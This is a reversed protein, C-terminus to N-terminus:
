KNPVFYMNTRLLRKKDNSYQVGYSDELWDIDKNSWSQTIFSISDIGMQAAKVFIDFQEDGFFEVGERKKFLNIILKIAVINGAEAAKTLFHITQKISKEVGYGEYFCAALYNFAPTYDQEASKKFWFYAKAYDKEVGNGRLYCVGLRHQCGPHNKEAGISNYEFVKQFDQEVGEGKLYLNGINGYASAYGQEAAKEYWELALEFNQETGVGNEHWLGLLNQCRKDGFSACVQLKYFLDKCYASDLDKDKNECFSKAEEFVSDCDPEVMNHHKTYESCLLVACTWDKEEDLQRKDLYQEFYITKDLSSAFAKLRQTRQANQMPSVLVFENDGISQEKVIQSFHSLDYSEVDLINSLLHLTPRKSSFILDNKVLEDFQKNIAVIEADPFFRSCLLEARSLAMM